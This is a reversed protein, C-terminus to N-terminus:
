PPCGRRARAMLRNLNAEEWAMARQYDPHSAERQRFARSHYIRRGASSVQSPMAAHLLEHFLVFRVFFDPVQRHDLVPHIRVLNLEADFSGLQISSRSPSRRRRGFTLDPMRDLLEPLHLEVCRSSLVSLDHVQGLPRLTTPGTRPLARNQSEIWCDLTACARRARRGSKLWAALADVVEAPAAAFFRHLRLDLPAAEDGTTRSRVPYQRSRSYRVVVQHGLREALASQWDEVTFEPRPFPPLAQAPVRKM